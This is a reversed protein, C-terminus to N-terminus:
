RNDTNGTSALQQRHIIRSKRDKQKGQRLSSKLQSDEPLLPTILMQNLNTNQFIEFMHLSLYFLIIMHYYCGIYGDSLKLEHGTKKM